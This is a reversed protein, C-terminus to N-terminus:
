RCARCSDHRRPLRSLVAARAGARNEHKGYGLAFLSASLAGLHVVVLFFASLADLRFHAGLWPLGVPLTVSQPAAASLLHTLAAILAAASVILSAGYVFCTAAASRGIVVAFPGLALLVAACALVVTLTM